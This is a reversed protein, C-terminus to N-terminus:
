PGPPLVTVLFTRTVIICVTIWDAARADTWRPITTCSTFFTTGRICVASAAQITAEAHVLAGTVMNIALAVAGAAPKSIGALFFAVLLVPSWVAVGGTVTDVGLHAIAECSM